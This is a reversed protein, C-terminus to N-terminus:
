GEVGVASAVVGEGAAIAAVVEAAVSVLLSIAASWCSASVM